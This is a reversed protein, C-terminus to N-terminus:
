HLAFNIPVITDLTDGEMAAPMAPLPQARAVLALAERDLAARGSSKAIEASLLKGSRDIVFHLMVVGEIHASKAEPPYHKFRNLQALLQGPYTARSEGLDHAPAPSPMATQPVPRPPTATIANPAPAIDFAPVPVTVQPPQTFKPLVADIKEPKVLKESIEAMMLQPQAPVKAAHFALVLAVAVAVHAIVTIAVGIARDGAPRVAARLHEPRALAQQAPEEFYVARLPANMM